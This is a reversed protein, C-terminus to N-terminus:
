TGHHFRCYERRLVRRMIKNSATKPLDKVFVVDHIKFLPNLHRNIKDQMIKKITLVDLDKNTAAYVVLQSPGNHPPSIAIAASEIIDKTGSLVREIEVSSIKIGGLNMTDDVRGLITFCGHPLRQIQDGHRRLVKSNVIPMNAYYIQHHDANLLKVSLGIAPPILAVEGNDTLQGHEDLLVLDLGMAPTTFLSPYNKEVVTSSLYSGGIETGGCYEIVPKYGALSMLYLMDEPNSSEGTSSFVKINNWNLGHMCQTQRWTAVLTPVVGLMTVKANQIFEGFARNSPVDHYLALTANNLLAAFILWPGMMWGLNTPWSLIDNEQINQHLYADSAAKIPTTHNWPIAKPDGTTGSSFLINCTTMPDCPVTEFHDHTSLFHDWHIDISRLSIGVENKSPLVIALPANASIVKEYLPLQKDGRLIWDQTFIGKANSIRLRTAIEEASFSDAISVVMGGMKIIGLYIAVAEKTMPMDIAIADGPKFHNDVLGNAIRNSLRNLEEYSMSQLQKSNDLYIIATKDPPAKFCNEAINLKAGKFWIPSEVGQTLDCITEYPKQFTLNMKNIILKIFNNYHSTTWSHFEKIDNKNVEQMCKFLNTKIIHNKDPIWAPASEPNSQCQPYCKGYILLHMQFPIDPTLIDRSIINWAEEGSHNQLISEVVTMNNM